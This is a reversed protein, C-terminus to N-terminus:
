PVVCVCACVCVCMCVHVDCVKEFQGRTMILIGGIYADYHYLPHLSPASIHLPGAENYAYLLDDNTPILDVDHMAM